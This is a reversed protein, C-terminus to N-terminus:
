MGSILLAYTPVAYVSTFKTLLLYIAGIDIANHVFLDSFFTILM